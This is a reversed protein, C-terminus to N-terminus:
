GRTFVMAGDQSLDERYQYGGLSFKKIEDPSTLRHRIVYDAMAGRARKALLGIVRYIGDKHEKFQVHILSTKLLGPKVAKFYEDSALNLIAKANCQQAAEEIALTIKEGWFAYLDKGKPNKLATGMELRYPQMLTLPTLLGYLGSLIRLHSEAFQLEKKGYQSVNMANYVDGRFMYLAPKANEETFDPSFDHYRGANLTAIKESVGMLNQLKKATMKKLIGALKQTEDPFLPLAAPLPLAVKCEDLTKAPSLLILM